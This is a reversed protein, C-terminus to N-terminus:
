FLHRLQLTHRCRIPRPDALLSLLDRNIEDLIGQLESARATVDLQNGEVLPKRIDEFLALTQSSLKRVMLLIDSKLEVYNKSMAKKTNFIDEISDYIQFLYDFQTHLDCYNEPNANM